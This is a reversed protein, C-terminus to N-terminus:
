TVAVAVATTSAYAGGGTVSSLSVNVRCMPSSGVQTKERKGRGLEAEQKMQNMQHKKYSKALIDEWGAGSGCPAGFLIPFFLLPFSSNFFFSFLCM